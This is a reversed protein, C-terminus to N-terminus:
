LGTKPLKEGDPLMCAPVWALLHAQQGSIGYDKLSISWGNDTAVVLDDPTRTFGAKVPLGIRRAIDRDDTTNKGGTTLVFAMLQFPPKPNHMVMLQYHQHWPNDLSFGNPLYGKELLTQGSITVREGNKIQAELANQNDRIYHGGAQSLSSSFNVIKM